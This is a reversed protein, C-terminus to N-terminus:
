QQHECVCCKIVIPAVPDWSVSVLARTWSTINSHYVSDSFLCTPLNKSVTCPQLRLYEAGGPGRNALILDLFNTVLPQVSTLSSEESSDFVFKVEKKHEFLSFLLTHFHTVSHLSFDLKSYQAITPHKAEVQLWVTQSLIIQHLLLSYQVVFVDRLLEYYCPLQENMWLQCYYLVFHQTVGCRKVGRHLSGKYGFM